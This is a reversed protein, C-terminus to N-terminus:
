RAILANVWIVLVIVGRVEVLFYEVSHASPVLRLNVDGTDSWSLCILFEIQSVIVIKGIVEM